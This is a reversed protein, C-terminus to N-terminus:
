EIRVEARISNAIFCAEHAAHHLSQLAEGTPVRDGSFGLRPRLVIETFAQRGGGISGMRGEAADEYRDVVYGEKAAFWLFWLMHCSSVAAVLAEEPDVGAPDSWPLPVNLPSSSGRVVAGGDFRWEHGRSYRGGAFDAEPARQWHVTCTHSSM